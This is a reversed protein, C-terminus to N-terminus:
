CRTYNPYGRVNAGPVEPLHPGRLQPCGVIRLPIAGLCSGSINAPYGTIVRIGLVIFPEQLQELGSDYVLLCASFLYSKSPNVQYRLYGGVALTEHVGSSKTLTGGIQFADAGSCFKPSGASFKTPKRPAQCRLPYKGEASIWDEDDDGVVVSRVEALKGM